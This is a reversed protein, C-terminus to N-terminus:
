RDRVKIEHYLWTRAHAWYERATRPAIGLM